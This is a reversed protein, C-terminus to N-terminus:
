VLGFRRDLRVPHPVLFTMHGFRLQIFRLEFPLTIIGHVISVQIFLATVIDCIVFSVGGDWIVFDVKSVRGATTWADKLSRVTIRRRCPGKAPYLICLSICARRAPQVAGM